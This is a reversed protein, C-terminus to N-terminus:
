AHVCVTASIPVAPAIGLHATSTSCSEHHNQVAVSHQVPRKSSRSVRVGAHSLQQHDNPNLCSRLTNFLAPCWLSHSPHRVQATHVDHLDGAM